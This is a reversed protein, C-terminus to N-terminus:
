PFVLVGVADHVTQACSQSVKQCERLTTDISKDLSANNMMSSSNSKSTNSNSSKRANNSYDAAQAANLALLGLILTAFGTTRIMQMFLGKMLLSCYPVISNEM